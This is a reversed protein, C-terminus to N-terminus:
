SSNPSRVSTAGIGKFDAPYAEITFVDKIGPMNRADSDDLSKLKLGFSPPHVIMAILMGERHFDLGFLPKGTVIKLADVNKRSTGIIKFDGVPKLTVEKPVPVHAAASAMEGYAASKGSKKHYLVGADTSVEEMPVGWAQAAAERLMQRATAGATRLAKWSQRISQSGGAIQRSFIDTNLPAQEM